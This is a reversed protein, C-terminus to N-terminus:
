IWVKGLANFARTRFDYGQGKAVGGIIIINAKKGTKSDTEGAALLPTNAETRLSPDL